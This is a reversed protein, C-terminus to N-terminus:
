RINKKGSFLRSFWGSPAAAQVEMFLEVTENAIIKLPNELCIRRYGAEGVLARLKQAAESLIPRRSNIGHADSGIVHVIGRTVLYEATAAVEKGLRGNLSPANLQILVGRRVWEELRELDRAVAPNREPHALIPTIGRAQLMFFFDETYPPIELAPLETLLYSGGNICYPGPGTIRNLIDMNLAVEAGPYINLHYGSEESVKRLLTCGAVIEEWDPLWGGEVVHPTVALGQTGHSVALELMAKSIELNEAGDDIGPIIHTHLDFM